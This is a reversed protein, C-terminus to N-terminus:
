EEDGEALQALWQPRQLLDHGLIVRIDVGEPLETNREMRSPQLCKAKLAQAVREAEPRYSILTEQAGFDRHNGIRDVQFGERSLV